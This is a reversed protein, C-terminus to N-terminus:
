RGVTNPAGTLTVATAVFPPPPRMSTPPASTSVPSEKWYYRRSEVAWGDRLVKTRVCWSMNCVDVQYQVLGTCGGRNCGLQFSNCAAAPLALM